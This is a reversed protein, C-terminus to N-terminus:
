ELLESFETESIDVTGNVPELWYEAWLWRYGDNRDYVDKLCYLPAEWGYATQHEEVEYVGGCYESMKPDFYESSIEIANEAIRVLEGIQYAHEM